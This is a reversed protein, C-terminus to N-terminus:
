GCKLTSDSDVFTHGPCCDTALVTPRLPMKCSKFKLLTQANSRKAETMGPFSVLFIFAILM